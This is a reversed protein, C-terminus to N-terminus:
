AGIGEAALARVWGLLAGNEVSAHLPHDDDVEILRVRDPSGTAALRRSHEVPILDDRTGHVLWVPM